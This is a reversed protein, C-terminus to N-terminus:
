HPGVIYLPAYFCAPLRESWSCPVRALAKANFAKEKLLLEVFHSVFYCLRILGLSSNRLILNLVDCNSEEYVYM